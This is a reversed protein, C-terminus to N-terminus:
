LCAMIFNQERLYQLYAPLIAKLQPAAKLSDHFVVIQGAEAGKNLKQLAKTPNLQPNFDGSLMSWMVVTYKELLAQSQSRKLKGYPPRFLPSNVFQACQEVDQLYRPSPHKWGNLHHQTHNGVRHGRRIIEAYLEPYRAVNEGVCFFSAKAGYIDLQDLVWPTIEPHPGDDFTLYITKGDTPMRWLLRPFLKDVFLPTKRPYLM